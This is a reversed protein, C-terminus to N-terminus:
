STAHAIRSLTGHLKLRVDIVKRVRFVFFSPDKMGWEVFPIKFEAEGTVTDGDRYVRAPVDLPHTSGHITITGTLLLDTAGEAPLGGELHEPVFVIKPYRESQLVDNHMKKDRSKHFTTTSLANIVISGSAQGTATDFAIAGEELAIVGEVTHTTAKLTFDINTQRPDLELVEEAEVHSVLAAFVVVGAVAIKLFSDSSRLPFSM